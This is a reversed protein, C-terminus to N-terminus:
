PLPLTTVILARASPDSRGQYSHPEVSDFYVSDGPALYHDELEYHISLVGSLVHVLEWGEHSHEGRKNNESSPFEALYASLRKDVVDYTLVEFFFAPQTDDPNQPFRIREPARSIAFVRKSRTADFFHDLGVDFVVAIRSLTPLTPMLKGNELQSLMSASLGSHRGLDALGMRKRLRLERLKSGIGYDGLMKSIAWTAKEYASLESEVSQIELRTSESNSFVSEEPEVKLEGTAKFNSM